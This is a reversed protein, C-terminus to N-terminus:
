AHDTQIDHKRTQSASNNKTRLLGIQNYSLFLPFIVMKLWYLLVSARASTACCITYFEISHPISNSKIRARGRFRCFHLRALEVVFNPACAIQANGGDVYCLTKDNDLIRIPHFNQASLKVPQYRPDAFNPDGLPMEGIRKRLNEIVKHIPLTKNVLSKESGFISNITGNKFM